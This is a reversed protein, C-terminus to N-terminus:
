GSLTQKVSYPFQEGFDATSGTAIVKDWQLQGATNLKVLHFDDQGAIAAGTHRTMGAMIYGSDSTQQISFGYDYQAGDILRRCWLTDGYADTKIVKFALDTESSGLMVYGGDFTQEVSYLLDSQSLNFIRAFATDGNKDTKMFLMVKSSLSTTYGALVFGSDTTQRVCNARDTNTNGYTKQFTTQSFSTQFVSLLFPLLLLKKM